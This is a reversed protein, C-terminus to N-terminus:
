SSDTEVEKRSSEATLTDREREFRQRTAIAESLKDLGGAVKLDEWDFLLTEPRDTIRAYKHSRDWMKNKFFNNWAQRLRLM